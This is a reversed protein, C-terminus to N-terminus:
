TSPRRLSARRRQCRKSASRVQGSSPRLKAQIAQQPRTGLLDVETRVLEPQVVATSSVTL